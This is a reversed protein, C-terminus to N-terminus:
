EMKAYIKHILEDLDFDLDEESDSDIDFNSDEENYDVDNELDESLKNLFDVKSM